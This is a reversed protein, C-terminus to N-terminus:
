IGCKDRKLEDFHYYAKRYKAEYKFKNLKNFSFNIVLQHTNVPLAQGKHIFKLVTTKNSRIHYTM